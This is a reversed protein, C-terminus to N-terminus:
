ICSKLRLKEDCVATKIHNNTHFYTDYYNLPSPALQLGKQFVRTSRVVFLEPVCPPAICLEKAIPFFCFCIFARFVKREQKPANELLKQPVFLM